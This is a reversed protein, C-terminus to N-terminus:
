SARIAASSRSTPRWASSSSNRFPASFLVRDGLLPDVDTIVPGATEGDSFSTPQHPDCARGEIVRGRHWSVVGCDYRPDPRDAVLELRVTIAPDGRGQAVLAQHDVVLLDATQHTLVLQLRFTPPAANDRSVALM